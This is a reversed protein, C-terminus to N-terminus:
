DDLHETIKLDLVACFDRADQETAFYAAAALVSGNRDGGWRVLCPRRRNRYWSVSFTPGSGDTATFGESSWRLWSM